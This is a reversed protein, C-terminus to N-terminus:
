GHQSQDNGGHRQLSVHLFVNSFKGTVERSRCIHRFTM